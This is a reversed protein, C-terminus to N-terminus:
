GDVRRGLPPEAGASGHEETKERRVISKKGRREFPLISENRRKESKRDVPQTIDGGGGCWGGEWV